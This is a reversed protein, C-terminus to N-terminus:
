LGYNNSKHEGVEPVVRTVDERKLCVCRTKEGRLTSDELARASHKSGPSATVTVHFPTLNLVYLGPASCGHSRVTTKTKASSFTFAILIHIYIYIYFYIFIYIYIYWYIYTDIYIYTYIYIYIYIYIHIYICIYIYQVRGQLDRPYNLDQDTQFTIWSLYFSKRGLPEDHLIIKGFHYFTLQM